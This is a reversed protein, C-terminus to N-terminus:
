FPPPAMNRNLALSWSETLRHLKDQGECSNWMTGPRTVFYPRVIISIMCYKKMECGLCFFFFYYPEKKVDKRSSRSFSLIRTYKNLASLCLVQLLKGKQEKWYHSSPSWWQDRSWWQRSSNSSRWHAELELRSCNHGLFEEGVSLGSLLEATM